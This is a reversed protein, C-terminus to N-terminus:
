LLYLEAIVFCILIGLILGLCFFVTLVQLFFRYIIELQKETPNTKWFEIVIPAKKWTDPKGAKVWETYGGYLSM